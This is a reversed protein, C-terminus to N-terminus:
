KGLREVKAMLDIALNEFDESTLTGDDLIGVFAARGQKTNLRFGRECLDDFASLRLLYAREKVYETVLKVGTQTDVIDSEEIDFFTTHTEQKLTTSVCLAPREAYRTVHVRVGEAETITRLSETSPDVDVPFRMLAMTSPRDSM